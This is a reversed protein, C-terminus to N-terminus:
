FKVDTVHLFFITGFRSLICCFRYFQHFLMLFFGNHLAILGIENLLNYPDATSYLLQNHRLRIANWKKHINEKFQIKVIWTELGSLLNVTDTSYISVGSRLHKEKDNMFIIWLSSLTVNNTDYLLRKRYIAKNFWYHINMILWSLYGANGMFYFFIYIFNLKQFRFIRKKSINGGPYHTGM